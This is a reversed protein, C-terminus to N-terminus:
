SGSVCPIVHGRTQNRLTGSGSSCYICRVEICTEKRMWLGMGNASGYPLLDILSKLITLGFMTKGSGTGGTILGYSRVIEEMPVTVREGV